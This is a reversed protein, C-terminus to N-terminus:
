VAISPITFDWILINPSSFGVSTIAHMFTLRGLYMSGHSAKFFLPWVESIWLITRSRGHFVLDGKSLMLSWSPIVKLLYMGFDVTGLWLSLIELDLLKHLGFVYKEGPKKDWGFYPM